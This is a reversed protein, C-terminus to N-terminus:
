RINKPCKLWCNLEVCLHEFKNNIGMVDKKLFFFISFNDIIARNLKNNEWLFHINTFM